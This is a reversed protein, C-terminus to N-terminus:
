NQRWAMDIIETERGEDDYSTMSGDEHVVLQGNEFVYVDKGGVENNNEEENTWLLFKSM